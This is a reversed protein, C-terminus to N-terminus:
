PNDEGAGGAGADLERRHNWHIGIHGVGLIVTSVLLPPNKTYFSLLAFALVPLTAGAVPVGFYSSYFDRLTRESEFYRVWWLEYLALLAASLLLLLVPGEGFRVLVFFSTMVEGVRELLLLLKDESGVHAEYNWPKRSRWLLNPAFLAALYLFGFWFVRM